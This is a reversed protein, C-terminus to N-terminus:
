IPLNEIGLSLIMLNLYFEWCSIDSRFIEFLQCISKMLFM